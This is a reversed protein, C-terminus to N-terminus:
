VVGRAHIHYIEAFPYFMTQIAPSNRRSLDTDEAYLFFREDFLGTKKLAETRMFM